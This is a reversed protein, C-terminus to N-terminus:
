LRGGVSGKEVDEDPTNGGNNFDTMVIASPNGDTYINRSVHVAGRSPIPNVNVVPLRARADAPESWFATQVSADGGRSSGAASSAKTGILFTPNRCNLTAMLVNSYLKGLMLFLTFHYNWKEWGLWLITEVTATISTLAGTEISLRILRNLVGSTEAFKTEKKRKWLVSTLAATILVDCVASGGLWVTVGPSLPPLVSVHWLGINWQIGFWWLGVLQALVALAIPVPLWLKKTLHWIRWIYFGQALGSLVGSVLPLVGWSWNLQLLISVDGWGDGFMSWAAVTMLVTFLTEFFFLVWVLIKLGKRDNPFMETYMYLQVLLVGYLMYSWMFGLIMPGTLRAIPVGPIIVPAM